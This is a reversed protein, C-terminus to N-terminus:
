GGAKAPAPDFLLNNRQHRRIPIIVRARAQFTGPHQVCSVAMVSIGPADGTGPTGSPEGGLRSIQGVTMPIVEITKPPKRRVQVGMERNQRGTKLSINAKREYLHAAYPLNIAQTSAKSAKQSTAAPM